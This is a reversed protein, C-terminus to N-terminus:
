QATFTRPATRVVHGCDSVEAYWAYTRGATLGTFPLTARAGSAVPDVTGIAQPPPLFDSLDLPLTFESQAGTRYVDRRINYTEVKLTAQSPSFKWIRTWTDGDNCGSTAGNPCYFQFDALMSFVTVGGFVDERRSEGGIHGCTTLRLNPETRLANYAASGQAGFTGNSNLIYHQNLIAVHNPHDRLVQRAWDFVATERDWELNIVLFDIGAASFTMFWNDNDAGYHGGYYTRGMFHDIGFYENYKQTQDRQGIAGDVGSDHNGVNVAYPLGDPLGPLASELRYLAATARQWEEDQSNGDEVIDGNHIVAKINLAERNDLTWQTQTIFNQALAANDSYYQTDPLVVVTFDEAAESVYFTVTVDDGEPDTVDVALDVAAGTVTAGDAPGVVTVVPPEGQDLVAAPSGLTADGQLTGDNAGVSDTVDAPADLAWRGLLGAGSAVTTRRAGDLEAQTRAVNWVRVEDIAGQFAGEAAGTSNLAAGIAFHQISDQRPSATTAATGDVQGDLYLTWAAGDFTVAVHHWENFPIATTGQVPHNNNGAGSDDEFDAVLRGGADVAFFYNCDLNNGDEEGRGKAIIPTGVVGGVGSSATQGAGTRYIWAELTFVDLGLAPAVGM